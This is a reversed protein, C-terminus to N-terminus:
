QVSVTQEAESTAQKQWHTIQGGDIHETVTLKITYTGKAQYVHKPVGSLEYTAGDGMTWLNLKSRGSTCTKIKITDGLIMTSNEVEFCAIPHYKAKHCSYIVFIILVTFPIFLKKM